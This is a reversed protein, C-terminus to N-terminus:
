KLDSLQTWNKLNLCVLPREQDTRDFGLPGLLTELKARFRVNQQTPVEIFRVGKQHLAELLGLDFCWSGRGSRMADAVNDCDGLFLDHKLDRKECVLTASKVFGLLTGQFRVAGKGRAKEEPKPAAKRHTLLTPLVWVTQKKRKAGGDIVGYEDRLAPLRPSISDRDVGMGAAMESSTMGLTGAERLLSICGGILTETDVRGAADQSTEPDTSRRRGATRAPPSPANGEAAMRTRLTNGYNMLGEPAGHDM